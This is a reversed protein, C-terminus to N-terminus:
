GQTAPPSSQTGFAASKRGKVSVTMHGMKATMFPKRAMQQM